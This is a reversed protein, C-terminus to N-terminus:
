VLEFVFSVEDKGMLVDTSCMSTADGDADVIRDAKINVQLIHLINKTQKIKENTKILNLQIV